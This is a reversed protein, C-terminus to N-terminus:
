SNLTHDKYKRYLVAVKAIDPQKNLAAGVIAAGDSIGEVVMLNHSTYKESVLTNTASMFDDILAQRDNIATFINSALLDPDETRRAHVVVCVFGRNLLSVFEARFDVEFM